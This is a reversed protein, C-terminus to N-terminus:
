TVTKKRERERKYGSIEGLIRNEFLRLGSAIFSKIGPSIRISYQGTLVVLCSESIHRSDATLM